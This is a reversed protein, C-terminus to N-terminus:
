DEVLYVYDLNIESNMIVFAETCILAGCFTYRVVNNKRCGFFLLM